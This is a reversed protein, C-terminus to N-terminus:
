LYILAYQSTKSQTHQILRNKLQLSLPQELYGIRSPKEEDKYSGAAPKMGSWIVEKSIPTTNEQHNRCKIGKARLFIARQPVNRSTYSKLVRLKIMSRSIPKQDYYLARALSITNVKYCEGVGPTCVSEESVSDRRAPIM